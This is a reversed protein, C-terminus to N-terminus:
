LWGWSRGNRIDCVIHARIKLIEAIQKNTHGGKIRKKIEKVVDIKTKCWNLYEGHNIRRLGSRIAHLNNESSTAWELNDINSNLKNGDKHNIEKKNDPNQIYHIAILRHVLMQRPKTGKKYLTVASYGNMKKIPKLIKGTTKNKIVGCDDIEYIREYGIIDKLM